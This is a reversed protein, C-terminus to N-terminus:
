SQAGGKAPECKLDFYMATKTRYDAAKAACERQTQFSGVHDVPHWECGVASCVLGIMVYIM